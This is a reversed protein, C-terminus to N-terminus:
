VCSPTVKRSNDFAFMLHICSCRFCFLLIPRFFLLSSIFELQSRSSFCSSFLFFFFFCVTFWCVCMKMSNIWDCSRKLINEAVLWVCVNAHVHVFRRRGRSLSLSFFSVCTCCNKHKLRKKNNKSWTKRTRQEDARCLGLALSFAFSRPASTNTHTHIM